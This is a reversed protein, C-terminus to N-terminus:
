QPWGMDGGHIRPGVLLLRLGKVELALDGSFTECMLIKNERGIVGSQLAEAKRRM